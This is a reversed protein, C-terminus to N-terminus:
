ASAEEDVSSVPRILPLPSPPAAPAAPSVLLPLLLWVCMLLRRSSSSFSMSADLDIAIFTFDERRRRRGGRISCV